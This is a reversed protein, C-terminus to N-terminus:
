HRVVPPQARKLKQRQLGMEREEAARLVQEAQARTIEPASAGASAPQEQPDASGPDADAGGGGGGGGGGSGTRPDPRPRPSDMERQLLRRSIELNWKAEQDDPDLLLARKYAVIARVLDDTRSDSLDLVVPELYSNGLNYFSWERIQADGTRSAIELHPRAAEHERLRISTAGLDYHIIPSRPSESLAQRYAEHAEAYRGSAFLEAPDARGCSGLVLALVAAGGIAASRIM